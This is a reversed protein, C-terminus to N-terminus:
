RRASARRAAKLGTRLKSRVERRVLSAVSDGHADLFQEVDAPARKTLERLAWSLAKVVMPDQDDLAMQCIALTRAADGSGGRARSLVTSVLRAGCWRDADRGGPSEADGIPRERWAPGSM